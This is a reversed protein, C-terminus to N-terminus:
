NSLIKFEVRRNLERGEFEDDNTAMPREEGYGRAELRRADVGKNTLYDVVANARRQSLRKNYEKSGTNDTHGSIELKVGPNQALMNELKNLERYSQDKFTAKNFDFYINRLVKRIGVEAKNLLVTKEILKPEAGAAPIEIDLTRFVYGPKEVALVFNTNEDRTFEAEYIGPKKEIIGTIINDTKAKIDVDAELPEETSADAVKVRLTVSANAIATVQIDKREQETVNKRVALGSEDLDPLTVIYIDDYGLGDERVSAYYGREGDETSVFYIDNDPTNIPYGLNIPESWTDSEQDYETRFIDYGGMGKRGKSSFYLTKGDYDIFPGDDDYETNIVEGLNTARGWEDNEDKLSMYIDLGGLGGPRNSSFFARKDDKSISISKETFSSNIRTSLPEPLGFKGNKKRESAYIDGGNDDKYIYLVEADASLALNSDFYPTNIVDGINKAPMWTDGRRESIFIDEYPFNDDHVNNNVNGEQRRTTFIMVTEDENLVPAYDPWESNIASGVNVISYSAPNKIFEQGNECEYIRREVLDLPVKDRGRYNVDDLLKQKYRKYYDLAKEFDSGLQYGRGIKYLLDFRYDPDLEYVREFFRTARQRNVTELYTQGAMYNAKINNPDAEAAMVYQENAVNIAQLVNYAEDAIEILRRATEENNQSFLSQSIFLVAIGVTLVEKRFM